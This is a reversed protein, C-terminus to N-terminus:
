VCVVLEGVLTGGLHVALLAQPLPRESGGLLLLLRGLRPLEELLESLTDPRRGRRGAGRRVVERGAIADSVFMESDTLDELDRARAHGPPDLDREELEALLVEHQLVSPQRLHRRSASPMAAGQAGRPRARRARPWPACRGSRLRCAS